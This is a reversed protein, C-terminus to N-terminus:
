ENEEPPKIELAGREAMDLALDAIARRVKQADKPPPGGISLEQEIMRKTRAPLVALIADRLGAEVGSLAVIIQEPPVTAFLTTRSADPMRAIDEFTFLLGKVVRAEKPKHSHLSDLVEDMDRRDMKNIIDAVRAHINPGSVRSIKQLVEDRIVAELLRLAPELVMGTALIRRVIENRLSPPLLAIVAAATAPSTKSLIYAAVQPHEKALHQALPAHPIDNLRPWVANNARSRVESMIQRVQEAPIVGTLLAEADEFGGKVARDAALQRAFEHVLTEIAASPVAGLDAASRALARIEDESFHKLVKAASAKTMALLLAAAKGSGQLGKPLAGSAGTSGDM